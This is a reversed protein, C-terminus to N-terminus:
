PSISGGGLRRVLRRFREDREALKFEETMWELGIVQYASLRESVLDARLSKALAYAACDGRTLEVEARHGHQEFVAQAAALRVKISPVITVDAQGLQELLATLEDQDRIGFRGDKIEDFTQQAMYVMPVDNEDIARQIASEVVGDLLARFSTRDIVIM